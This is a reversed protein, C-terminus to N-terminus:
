AIVGAAVLADLADESLGLAGALAERTDAGARPPARDYSAPTESLKVPFAVVQLPTGDVRAMAQVSERHAVQPDAFIEPLGAVKGAPLKAAEMAAVLDDSGWQAVAPALQAHLADRHESRLAVSAFRPDDALDSLGLVRLFDRFQRDNGLAVVIAGDATEYDRYPVINPHDNGRRVPVTGGNLWNSAQNSLMALQTDLLACDVHQGHGTADRHRLAALIAVTAYTGTFLDVIPVGVKMPPGDAEGTVSMLGGMAQILFDYGGKDKYPGDQGFGTISCYVLRPNIAALSAYDLGYKALGGVRFNEVLVDSQAALRRILEAGAPQALDIALSRKNRNACLYYASDGSDDALAPPGWRRTDDGQGPQEIKLVEAGLDGLMQTAWPGALVRSLDLVKVGALAGQTEPPM